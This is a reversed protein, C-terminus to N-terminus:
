AAAIKVTNVTRNLKKPWLVNEKRCLDVSGEEYLSKQFAAGSGLLRPSNQRLPLLAILSEKWSAFVM